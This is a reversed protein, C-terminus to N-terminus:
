DNVKKQLQNLFHPASHTKCCVISFIPFDSNSPKNLFNTFPAQVSSSLFVASNRSPANGSKVGGGWPLTRTPFLIEAFAFITLFPLFKREDIIQFIAAVSAAPDTAI